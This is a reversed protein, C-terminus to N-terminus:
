LYFYVTKMWIAIINISFQNLALDKQCRYSLNELSIFAIVGGHNTFLAGTEGPDYWRDTLIVSVQQLSLPHLEAGSESDCILHRCLYRQATSRCWGTSQGWCAHCLYNCLSNSLIMVHLHSDSDWLLFTDEPWQKTAMNVRLKEM